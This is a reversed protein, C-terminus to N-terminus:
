SPPNEEGNEKRKALEKQLLKISQRLMEFEDTPGGQVLIQNYKLTNNALLDFIDSLPLSSYEADM